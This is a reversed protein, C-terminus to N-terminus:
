RDSRSTSSPRPSATGSTARSPARASEHLGGAVSTLVVDNITGGLTERIAHVREFPAEATAFRRAPGVSADFPGPPPDDNDNLTVVEVGVEDCWGLVEEVKDSPLVEAIVEAIGVQAAVAEATAEEMRRIYRGDRPLAEDVM